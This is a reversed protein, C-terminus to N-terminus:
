ASSSKRSASSRGGARRERLEDLPTGAPEDSADDADEIESLTARLQAALQAKVTVPALRYSEELDDALAKLREIRSM